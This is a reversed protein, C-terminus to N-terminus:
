VRYLDARWNKVAQKIADASLKEEAARKALVVFEGDSIDVTVGQIVSVAGFFKRVDRIQVSSM